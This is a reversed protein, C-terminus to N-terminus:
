PSKKIQSADPPLPYPDGSMARWLQRQQPNFVADVQAQYQRHLEAYRRQADQTNTPFGKAADNLTRSYQAGIQQLTGRQETSLNLKQQVDANDFAGHGQAQLHLQNFREMQQANLFGTAPELLGKNFGNSLEQTQAARQQEPLNALGKLGINYDNWSKEYTKNLQGLQDPTLNLHKQVAPDSFWPTQSMNGPAAGTKVLAPQFIGATGLTGQQVQAPPPQNGTPPQQGAPPQQGTPPQQVAPPQQGAPPAKGAPPQQAGTSGALLAIFAGGVVFRLNRYM